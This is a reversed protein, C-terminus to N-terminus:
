KKTKSSIFPINYDRIIEIIGIFSDLIHNYQSDLIPKPHVKGDISRGNKEKNLYLFELYNFLDEAFICGKYNDIHSKVRRIYEEKKQPLYQLFDLDEEIRRKNDINSSIIFKILEIVSSSHLNYIQGSHLFIRHFMFKETEYKNELYKLRESENILKKFSKNFQKILEQNITMM